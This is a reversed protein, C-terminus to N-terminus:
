LKMMFYLHPCLLTSASARLLIEYGSLNDSMSSNSMSKSHMSVCITLATNVPDLDFDLKISDIEHLGSIMGVENSRSELGEDVISQTFIWHASGLKHTIM